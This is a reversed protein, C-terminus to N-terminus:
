YFIHLFIKKQDSLSVPLFTLCIRFGIAFNIRDIFMNVFIEDVVFAKRTM